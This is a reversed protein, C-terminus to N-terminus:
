LSVKIARVTNSELHHSVIVVTENRNRSSALQQRFDALSVVEGNVFYRTDANVRLTTPTCADCDRMSITGSTTGPARFNNLNIEHAETITKIDALAAANLFALTLLLTLKRNM